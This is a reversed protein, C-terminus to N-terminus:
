LYVVNNLLLNGYCCNHHPHISFIHRLNSRPATMSKGCDRCRSRVEQLIIIKQFWIKLIEAKKGLILHDHVILNHLVKCCLRCSRRFLGPISNGVYRQWSLLELIPFKQSVLNLFFQYIDFCHISGKLPAIPKLSPKQKVAVTGCRGSTYNLKFFWTDSNYRFVWM